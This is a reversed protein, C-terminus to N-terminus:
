LCSKIVMFYFLYYCFHQIGLMASAHSPNTVAKDINEQIWDRWAQVNWMLSVMMSHWDSMQDTTVIPAGALCKSNNFCFYVNFNYANYDSNSVRM